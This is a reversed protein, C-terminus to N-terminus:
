GLGTLIEDLAELTRDIDTAEIVLPPKIKIVDHAPGDISLLIGRKVAGEVLATALEPAPERTARDRVLVIGLYLGLGRVDGM